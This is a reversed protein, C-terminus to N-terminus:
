PIPMSTFELNFERSPGLPSFRKVLGNFIRISRKCSLWSLILFKALTKELSTFVCHASPIFRGCNVVATEAAPVTAPPARPKAAPNAAPAFNPAVIPISAPGFPAIAPAMTPPRTPPTADNKVVWANVDSAKEFLSFAAPAKTAFEAM